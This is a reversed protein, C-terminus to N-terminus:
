VAPSEGLGQGERHHHNENIFFTGTERIFERDMTSCKKIARTIAPDYTFGHEQFKHVWYVNDRCNQHWRGPRFNHTCFVYKCNAFVSFVNDLYKEEIHELFEISWALDFPEIELPGDDFNHLIDVTLAPDGDIGVAELGMDRAAAVMGGPGCGVDVVTKIGFRKVIFALSGLDINTMYYHGGIRGM